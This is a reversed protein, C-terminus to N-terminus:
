ECYECAAEFGANKLDTLTFEGQKQLELATYGTDALEKATYGAHKLEFISRGGFRSFGGIFLADYIWTTFALNNMPKECPERSM